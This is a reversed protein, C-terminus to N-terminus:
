YLPCRPQSPFVSQNIEEVRTMAVPDDPNNELANYEHVPVRVSVYGFYIAVADDPNLFEEFGSPFYSPLM